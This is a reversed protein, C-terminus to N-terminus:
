NCYVIHLNINSRIEIIGLVNSSKFVVSNEITKFFTPIKSNQIRGYLTPSLLIPAIYVECSLVNLMLHHLESVNVDGQQEGKSFSLELM